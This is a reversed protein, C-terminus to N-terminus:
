KNLLWIAYNLAGAFSVWFFYPVLLWAAKKDIECFSYILAIIMLWLVLIDIMALGINKLGFFLISWFLNFVLHMIFLWFAFRVNRKKLGKQWVFFLAIGMLIYLTTWVPGFIWSPPNFDPKQLTNYWTDIAPTTFISGLFGVSLCLVIAIFLKNINQSKKM